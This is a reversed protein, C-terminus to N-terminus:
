KIGGRLASSVLQALYGCPFPSPIAQWTGQEGTMYAYLAALKAPAPRYTNFYYRINPPMCYTMCNDTFVVM